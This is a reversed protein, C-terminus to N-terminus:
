DYLIACWLLCSLCKYLSVDVFLYFFFFTEFIWKLFFYYGEKDSYKIWCQINIVVILCWVTFIYLFEALLWTDSWWNEHICLRMSVCTNALLCFSVSLDICTTSVTYLVQRSHYSIPISPMLSDLSDMSDACSSIYTNVWGRWVLLM